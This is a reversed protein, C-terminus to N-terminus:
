KSALLVLVVRDFDDHFRTFADANLLDADELGALRDPIRADRSRRAGAVSRPRRRHEKRGFAALGNGSTCWRAGHRM